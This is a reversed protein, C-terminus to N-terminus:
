KEEAEKVSDLAKRAYYAVTTDADDSGAQLVKMCDFFSSSAMTKMVLIRVDTDEDNVLDGVIRLTDPTGIEGAAWIASLKFWKNGSEVMEKLVDMCRLSNYKWLAVIANGRVRNNSDTLLIEIHKEFDRRYLADIAEVVNARVRDNSDKLYPLLKQLSDMSAIKGLSQIITAKLKTEDYDCKDICDFLHSQVSELNCSGLALAAQIRITENEDSLLKVVAEVISEDFHNVLRCLSAYRVKPSEDKLAERFIDLAEPKMEGDYNNIADSRELPDSDKLRNKITEISNMTNM